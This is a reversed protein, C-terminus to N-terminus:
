GSDRRIARRCVAGRASHSASLESSRVVAFKTNDRPMVAEFNPFQGTLKRSSLTRHGVRFFLTHEDDAFEVKEAESNSLLVAAAGASGQASHARAKRWQHRGPTEGPKEVFSLRHGDTAIM